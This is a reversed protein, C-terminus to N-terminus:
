DNIFIKSTSIENQSEVSVIYIDTSLTQDLPIRNNVLSPYAIQYILQGSATYVSLKEIKERVNLFHLSGNGYNVTLQELGCDYNVKIAAYDTTKGDYDVQSLRYYYTDSISKVDRYNYQILEESSGAGSIQAIPKFIGDAAARELIFHDNNRETATEWVLSVAGAVCNGEFRILEVPLESLLCPNSNVPCNTVPIGLTQANSNGTIPDSGTDTQPAGSNTLSLTADPRRFLNQAPAIDFISENVNVVATGASFARDAYIANGDDETTNNEFYCHVLTVLSNQAFVGIAGGDGSSPTATNGIFACEEMYVTANYGVGLAGGYGSSQNIANDEFCSNYVELTAGEVYIGAGTNAINNKISSNLITVEVNSTGDILIGGGLFSSIKSNDSIICNEILMTINSGEIQIGGGYNSGNCSASSNRFIVERNSYVVLAADGNDIGAIMNVDDIIVGTAGDVTISKGGNGADNQFRTLTMGQITVNDGTINAFFEGSCSGCPGNDFLTLLSGAGIFSLNNINIGLANDVAFYTGADIFFTDGAAITNSGSPGYLALIATISPAPTNNTLGDNAGNGVATCYIDNSTSNDNIYYNTARLNTGVLLAFLLASFFVPRFKCTLKHM